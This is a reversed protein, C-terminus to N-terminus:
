GTVAEWSGDRWRVRIPTPRPELRAVARLANLPYNTGQAVVVMLRLVRDATVGMPTRGNEWLSLSEPTTGLHM